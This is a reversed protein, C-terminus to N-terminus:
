EEEARNINSKRKLLDNAVRKAEQKLKVLGKGNQKLTEIRFKKDLYNLVMLIENGNGDGLRYDARGFYFQKITKLNKM